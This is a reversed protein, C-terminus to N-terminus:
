FVRRDLSRYQVAELVHHPAIDAERELDAITRAVKLIRHYARASLGLQQMAQNLLDQAQGDLACHRRIQRPKMMANCYVLEHRFRDLQIRRAEAVRRRIASSPEQPEQSQLDEHRVAPVEIHLDIRDLIPGSVKGKYRQVQVSSCRCPQVPDGWYGCPCPNMAAILMFRAPYTLSMSARAITVQGDELPQRLLDLINRRFEPLEDLFLVGNHALSVEGPRPVHGGGILGADSITHHPSRFSRRVVLAREQLLGAVSFIKTTELAEEFSLLPLIGAIRQALMTKGAGPPGIMLVNHGGAAAVEMARKAHEQGKVEEFDLDEHDKSSWIEHLNVEVPPIDVTGKLYDVAESLHQVPLITAGNTVAAELASGAPVLMKPFGSDRAQIAMPLTGAVPKIRGDLSLEGVLLTKEVSAPSVMGMAALIGIAIPLDFGAGEKKLHAPALNVTIREMPFPYGSNQLATKVRDKSERVVSDPLGVTAFYPLGPSLDVEVEVLIADIGLLSCTYTKSIM